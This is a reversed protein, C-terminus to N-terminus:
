SKQKVGGNMLALTACVNSGNVTSNSASSSRFEISKTECSTINLKTAAPGHMNDKAFLNESSIQLGLSTVQIGNKNFYAVQSHLDDVAELASWHYNYLAHAATKKENSSKSCVAFNVCEDVATTKMPNAPCLVIGRHDSSAINPITIPTEFRDAINTYIKNLTANGRTPECVLQKLSYARVSKHNLTNFDGLLMVGAHPHQQLISNISNIIHSTMPWSSADPPHYIVGIIIHSVKRPM